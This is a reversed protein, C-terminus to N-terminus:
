FLGLGSCNHELFPQMRVISSPQRDPPAALCSSGASPTGLKPEINLKSQKTRGRGKPKSILKNSKVKRESPEKNKPSKLRITKYTNAAM